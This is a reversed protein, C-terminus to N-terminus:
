NMEFRCRVVVDGDCASLAVVASAAALLGFGRAFQLAIM